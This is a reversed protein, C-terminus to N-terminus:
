QDGVVFAAASSKPQCRCHLRRTSNTRDTSPSASPHAASMTHVLLAVTAPNTGFHAHLHEIKLQKLRRTLWAAELLYAAHKGKPSAGTWQAALSSRSDELTRAPRSLFMLLHAADLLRFVGQELIAEVQAAERSIPQTRSTM